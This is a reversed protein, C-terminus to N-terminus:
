VLAAEDYGATPVGSFLNRAETWQRTADFAEARSSVLPEIEGPTGCKLHM